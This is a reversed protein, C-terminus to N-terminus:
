QKTLQLTTTYTKTGEGYDETETQAMTMTNGNRTVDYVEVGSGSSITLKNGDLKWTSNADFDTPDVTSVDCKQGAKSALKGGSNFTITTTTLCTVVDNGLGNPLGRFFALLDTTRQGTQFFDVGPNITMGSIVYTGEITNPTVSDSGSKSCSGFWVPLAVVLTWALLRVANQTKM